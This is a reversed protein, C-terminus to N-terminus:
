ELETSFFPNQATNGGIFDAIYGIYDNYGIVSPITRHGASQVIHYYGQDGRYNRYVLKGNTELALTEDDTGHLWLLPVQVNRIKEVNKGKYTTVYSGPLDLYSADEVLTEVQGIPAELILAIISGGTDKSAIECGVLSGLSFAYVVVRPNGYNERIYRLASFGDQYIGEETPTGTSKGYGRFDFAFVPYGTGTLLRTRPWYYDIHPGTGHIYLIMTDTSDFTTTQAVLVAAITAPGSEFSVEHITSGDIPGLSDLADTCETKGNYEDFSYTTCEEGKFLFPDLSMCGNLAGVFLLFGYSAAAM